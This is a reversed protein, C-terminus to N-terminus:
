FYPLNYEYCKYRYLKTPNTLSVLNIVHVSYAIEFHNCISELSLTLVKRITLYIHECGKYANTDLYNPNWCFNVSSQTVTQLLNCILIILHLERCSNEKDRQLTLDHM